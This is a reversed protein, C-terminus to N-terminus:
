CADSNKLGLRLNTCAIDALSKKADTSNTTTSPVVGKGDILVSRYLPEAADMRGLNQYSVALNLEVFPDHPDKAHMAAFVDRAKAYDGANLAKFGESSADVGGEGGGGCGAAFLAFVVVPVFRVGFKPRAGMIGGYSINVGLRGQRPTGRLAM